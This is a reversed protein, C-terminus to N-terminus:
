DLVYLSTFRISSPKTFSCLIIDLTIVKRWFNLHLSPLLHHMGSVLNLKANNWWSGLSHQIYIILDSSSNAISRSLIEAKATTCISQALYNQKAPLIISHTTSHKAHDRDVLYCYCVVGENGARGTEGYVCLQSLWFYRWVNSFTRQSPPSCIVATPFWQCLITYYIQFM